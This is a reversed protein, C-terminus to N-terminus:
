IKVVTFTLVTCCKSSPACKLHAPRKRHQQMPFVLVSAESAPNLNSQACVCVCVLMSLLSLGTCVGFCVRLCGHVHLPTFSSVTFLDECITAPERLVGFCVCLHRECMHVYVVRSCFSGDALLMTPNKRRQRGLPERNPFPLATKHFRTHLLSVSDSHRQTWQPLPRARFRQKLGWKELRCRILPVTFGAYVTWTWSDCSLLVSSYDWLLRMCEFM